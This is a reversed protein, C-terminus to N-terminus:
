RVETVAVVASAGYRGGGQVGEGTAVVTLKSAADGTAQSSSFPGLKDMGQRFNKPTTSLYAMVYGTGEPGAAQVAWEPRPFRHTGASVRNQNDIDNPFLVDFSKGDSGIHLLYLYGAQPTTVTFDLRDKREISLSQKSLTLGLAMDQAGGARISELTANARVPQASGAAAKLSVPLNKDGLLTITQGRIRSQACQRLEEGSIVGDNNADAKPDAVCANWAVTAVSGNPGAYSLEQPSSAAVVLLRGKSQKAGRELGRMFKENIAEGCTYNPDNKDVERNKVTVFKATLGDAMQTNKSASTQGGSFCSDNMFIVHAAKSSIQALDNELDTDYYLNLDFGVMGETCKGGRGDQQGGHGSYYLFVRDGTQIRNALSKVAKKMGDVTLQQNRLETINNDSVGISRAIKRAMAADKDIGPLNARPNQYEGLWMILAYNEAHAAGACTMAALAFASAALARPLKAPKHKMTKKEETFL